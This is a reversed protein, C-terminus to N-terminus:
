INKMHKISSWNSLHGFECWLPVQCFGMLSQSNKYTSEVSPRTPKYLFLSFTSSWHSLVQYLHDHSECLNLACLSASNILVDIFLYFLSLIVLCDLPLPTENEGLHWPDVGPAPLAHIFSAIHHLVHYSQYPWITSWFTSQWIGERMQARGVGRDIGASQHSHSASVM